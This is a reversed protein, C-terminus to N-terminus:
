VLVKSLVTSCNPFRKEAWPVGEAIAAASDGDTKDAQGGASSQMSLSAGGRGCGQCHRDGLAVHAARTAAVATRESLSAVPIPAVFGLAGGPLSSVAALLASSAWMMTAAFLVSLVAPYVCIMPQSKQPATHVIRPLRPHCKNRTAATKSLQSLTRVRLCCCWTPASAAATSGSSKKHMHETGAALGVYM